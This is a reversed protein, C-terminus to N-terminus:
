ADFASTYGRTFAMTVMRNLRASTSECRGAKADGALCSQWLAVAQPHPSEEQQTFDGSEAGAGTAGVGAGSLERM